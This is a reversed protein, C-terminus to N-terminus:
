TTGSRILSRISNQKWSTFGSAYRLRGGVQIWSLVREATTRMILENCLKQSSSRAIGRDKNVISKARKRSFIGFGHRTRGGAHAYPTVWSVWSFGDLVSPM